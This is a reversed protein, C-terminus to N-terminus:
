STNSVIHAISEALVSCIFAMRQPDRLLGENFELLVAPIKLDSAENMIDNVTIGKIVKVRVEHRRLFSYLSITISGKGLKDMPGQLIVIEPPIEGPKFFNIDGAEEMWYNPFSHIDVLLLGQPCHVCSVSEKAEKMLSTLAKRFLTSRSSKRNLDHNHRLEDGEIYSCNMGKKKATSCFMRASTSAAIDCM